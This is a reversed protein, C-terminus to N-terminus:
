PQRRFVGLVALIVVELITWGVIAVVAAVDLTSGGASLADRGLIGSFPGVFLDSLGLIFSVIPNGERADLFLLLIRLGILLQILGFTLVIIRRALEGGSTRRVVTSESVSRVSGYGQTPPYPPAVRDEGVVDTKERRTTVVREDDYTM